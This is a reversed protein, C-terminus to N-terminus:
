DYYRQRRRLSKQQKRWILFNRIAEEGSDESTFDTSPTTIQIKNQRRSSRPSPAQEYVPSIAANAMAIKYSNEVEAISERFNRAMKSTQQQFETTLQSLAKNQESIVNKYGSILNYVDAIAEKMSSSLQDYNSDFKERVRELKSQQSKMQRLLKESLGNSYDPAPRATQPVPQMMPFESMRSFPQKYTDAFGNIQKPGINVTQNFAPNISFLTYNSIMLTPIYKISASFGKVIKLSVKSPPRQFQQFSSFRLWAQSSPSQPPSTSNQKINEIEKQHAIEAQQKEVDFKAQLLELQLRFNTASQEIQVKQQEQTVIANNYQERLTDLEKKLGSDRSRRPSYFGSSYSDEDEEEIQKSKKKSIKRQQSKRMKEIESEFKDKLEEKKAELDEKLENIEDEQDKKIAEIEKKGKAVISNKENEAKQKETEIDRQLQAKLNELEKANKAKMNEIDKSLQQDMQKKREELKNAYEQEKKKHNTELDHLLSNDTVDLTISKGASFSDSSDLSIINQKKMGDIEKQQEDKLKEVAENHQKKLKNIEDSQESKLQNIDISHQRKLEEIERAFSEKLKKIEDEHEKTLNSKIEENSAASLSSRVSEKEKENKSKLESIENEHDKKIKKMTEEFEQEAKKRQANYDDSATDLLKAYKSVTESYEQKLKATKDEVEREEARYRENLDNMKIRHAKAIEDLENQNKSILNDQEARSKRKIAEIDIRMQMEADEKEKQLAAQNSPIPQITTKPLVNQKYSLLTKPAMSSTQNKMGQQQNTKGIQAIPRITTQPQSKNKLAEIKKKKEDAFLQKYHADLPHDWLSEGTDSNFYFPDGSGDKRQYLKWGPPIKAKLAERAIWFLDKDANVDAGLWEAYDEVEKDTPEYDGANPDPM